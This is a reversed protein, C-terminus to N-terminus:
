FINQGIKVPHTGADLLNGDYRAFGLFAVQGYEAFREDLRLVSMEKVRRILYKGLQGFVMTNRTVPGSSAFTQLQDMDNNILYPYNMITDPAQVQLSPLWLPRGYKDKLRKLGALTSDHMMYKAGRRYLPDVSHELTVMDDSGVTNAGSSGDNTFAGVFTAGVTAAPIIGLPGQVTSGTCLTLDTNLIRGLRIAFQDTLFKQLDFASDQLLAISVKVLKTSYMWAMFTILGLTVDNQTAPQNEVLREGTVITDNSTPYPLPQGTATEMITPDGAGGNLMPGYYKLAQEVDNVFGTPVFFGGAAGVGGPYAAGGNTFMDRFEQPLQAILDPPLVRMRRAALLGKDEDGIGPIGYEPKARFGFKMGRGWADRYRKEQLEKAAADDAGGGGMSGAPPAGTGRMETELRDVAEIRNIRAELDKQAADFADFKTRDEPTKLGGTALTSMQQAIGMREERLARAENRNM